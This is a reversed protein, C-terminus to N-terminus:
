MQPQWGRTQFNNICVQEINCKRCRHYESSHNHQPSTQYESAPASVEELASALGELKMDQHGDVDAGGEGGDRDVDVGGDM